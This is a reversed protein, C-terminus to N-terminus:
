AARNVRGGSPGNEGAIYGLWRDRNFNPNEKAFYEAFDNIIERVHREPSAPVSTAELSAKLIEAIKIFHKKSM